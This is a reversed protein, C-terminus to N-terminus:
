RGAMGLEAGLTNILAYSVEEDRSGRVLTNWIKEKEYRSVELAGSELAKIQAEKTMFPFVFPDIRDAHELFTVLARSRAEDIRDEDRDGLSLIALTPVVRNEVLLSPWVSQYITPRHDPDPFYEDILRHPNAGAGALYAVTRWEAQRFLDVLREMAARDSDEWNENMQQIAEGDEMGSPDPTGAAGAIWQITANPNLAQYTLGIGYRALIASQAATREPPLDAISPFAANFEDCFEPHTECEDGPLSLRERDSDILVYDPRARALFRIAAYWYDTLRDGQNLDTFELDVSGSHMMGVFLLRGRGFQGELLDTLLTVHPDGDGAPGELAEAYALAMERYSDPDRIVDLRPLELAPGYHLTDVFGPFRRKSSSSEGVETRDSSSRGCGIFSFLLLVLVAVPRVIHCWSRPNMLM